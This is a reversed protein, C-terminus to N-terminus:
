HQCNLCAATTRGGTMFGAIPSGCATCAMGARGYVRHETQARGAEGGLSRYDALTSGGAKIARRLVKQIASTLRAIDDGDLTLAPRRPDLRAEFLSEDAYINGIGAVLSQDLLAAKIARRTAALRQALENRLTSAATDFADPGLRAWHAELAPQTPFPWLGGFRRPDRFCVRARDDFDWVAHIHTASSPDVDTRLQGSMGLHIQLCSGRDGVLALAKGHRRISM